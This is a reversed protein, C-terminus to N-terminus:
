VEPDALSYQVEPNCVEERMRIGTETRELVFKRSHHAELGAHSGITLLTAGPFDEDLLRLMEEESAPDLAETADEIFIWDPRRILLRAFGLRQQEALALVDVWNESEDLRALLHHLGVRGLATHAAQDSVTDGAAPYSLTDRLSGRPLYPRQPMFFVRTHAPLGIRGRGWPWV